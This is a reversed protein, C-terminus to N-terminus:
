NLFIINENKIDYHKSLDELTRFGSDFHVNDVPEILSLNRDIMRVIFENYKRHSKPVDKDFLFPIHEAIKQNYM